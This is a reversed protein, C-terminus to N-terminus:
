DRFIVHTIRLISSIEIISYTGLNYLYKAILNCWKELEIIRYMKYVQGRNKRNYLKVFAEIYTILNSKITFWELDEVIVTM